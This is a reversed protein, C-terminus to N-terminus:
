LSTRSFIPNPGSVNRSFELIEPDALTGNLKQLSAVTLNLLERDPPRESLQTEIYKRSEQDIGLDKTLYYSNLLISLNSPSLQACHKLVEAAKDYLKKEILLTALENGVFALQQRYANRHNTLLKIDDQVEPFMHPNMMNSFSMFDNVLEEANIEADIPILEMFFGKPVATYGLRRLTGPYSYLAIKTYAMEDHSLWERMFSFPSIEAANILRCRYEEFDPNSKIAELNEKSVRGDKLTKTSYLNLQRNDESARILLENKLFPTDLILSKEKIQKYLIRSVEDTFRGEKPDIDTYSFIPVSLALLLLPWCLLAGLKCVYPNDRYEYFDLEDDLKEIYMERMLHLSAILLGTIGALITYSYVPTKSILRAIGWPSLNINILSPILMAALLLQAMFLLPKRIRFSYAFVFFATAVPLVFLVFIRSWGFRPVLSLADRIITEQFLQLIPRPAPIPINICHVAANWLIFLALATGAIGSIICLLVRGMTFQESLKMSRYLVLIGIPALALFIASEVSCAALLFVALLLTLLKEKQDYSIILNLIMFLLMLDFTHPYLRTATFWFPGSFALVASAGFAGMIASYAARQNHQQVEEPISEAANHSLMAAAGAQYDEDEEDEYAGLLEPPLAKMAGGSDECSLLFIIRAILLYFLAIAISGCLASLTNLRVPLTEWPIEAAQRSIFAFIPNSLYFSQSIRAAQATLAAPSGPYIKDYLTFWYVVMPVILTIPMFIRVLLWPTM